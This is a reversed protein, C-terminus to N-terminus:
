MQRQLQTWPEDYLLAPRADLFCCERTSEISCKLQKLSFSLQLVGDDLQLHRIAEQLLKVLKLCFYVLCDYQHLGASHIRIIICKYTLKSVLSPM